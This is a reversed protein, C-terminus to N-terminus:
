YLESEFERERKQNSEVGSEAGKHKQLKSESERSEYTNKEVGSESKKM